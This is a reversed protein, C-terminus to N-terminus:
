SRSVGRGTEIRLEVHRDDFVGVSIMRHFNDINWKTLTM